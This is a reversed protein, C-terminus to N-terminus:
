QESHAPVLQFYFHHHLPYNKHPYLAYIQDTGLTGCSINNPSRLTFTPLSSIKL